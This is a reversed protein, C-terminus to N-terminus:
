DLFTIDESIKFEINFNFDAKIKLSEIFKSASTSDNAKPLWCIKTIKSLTSQKLLESKNSEAICFNISWDSIRCVIM